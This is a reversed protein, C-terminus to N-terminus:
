AATPQLIREVRQRNVGARLCVWGFLGLWIGVIGLSRTALVFVAIPLVAILFAFAARGIFRYDGAGILIGDCAFAVAAPLLLVALLFLGSTARSVVAADNSFARAVLPASAAVLVTLGVAVFLSLRIVRRALDLAASTGSAGTDRGLEEAILTQAPVALGDLVLALFLFMTVVIQHAALTPADIRAAIATAGTFVGLISAVRLLLHRGATLLPTMEAWNPRWQTAEALRRRIVVVFAVGAGIQAVVTSWAAGAIGMDFRLVLVLEVMVNFVNSCVLIVLPTRYDSSGRQVGQAALSVVVFPVSLAAIRLYEVAFIAVEDDAGLAATLPRAFGILLPVALVGVTGALWLAQVGVNAAEAPNGSGLRRAVRETTGYTIFNSSAIVLSLVSIAIALGGLQDTGLRGVVATDVLRYMPEAALTGLAPVALGIVRRDTANLHLVHERLCCAL